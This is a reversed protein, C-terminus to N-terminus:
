VNSLRESLLYAEGDFCSGFTDAGVVSKKKAEIKHDDGKIRCKMDNYRMMEQKEM